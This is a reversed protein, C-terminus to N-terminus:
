FCWLNMNHTMLKMHTFPRDVLLWCHMGRTVDTLVLTSLHKSKNVAGSVGVTVVVYHNTPNDHSTFKM